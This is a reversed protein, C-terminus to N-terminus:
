AKSFCGGRWTAISQSQVPFSKRWEDLSSIRPAKWIKEISTDIRSDYTFEWNSLNTPKKKWSDMNEEREHRNITSCRRPAAVCDGQEWHDWSELNRCAGDTSRISSVFVLRDAWEGARLFDLVSSKHDM